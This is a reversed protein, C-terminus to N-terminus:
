QARPAPEAGEPLKSPDKTPVTHDWEPRSPPEMDPKMFTEILRIFGLVALVLVVLGIVSETLTFRRFVKDRLRQLSSRGIRSGCHECNRHTRLNAEGCNRCALYLHAGCEHCRTAGALNEADCKACHIIDRKRTVPEAPVNEPMRERKSYGAIAPPDLATQQRM